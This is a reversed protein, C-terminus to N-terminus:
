RPSLVVAKGGAKEIKERATRSFAHAHIEVPRSITGEGLIKVLWGDRVCGAKKMVDLTIPSVDACKVLLDRLNLAATRVPKVRVFGRKPLRRALPM